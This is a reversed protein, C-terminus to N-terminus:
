FDNKAKKSGNQNKQYGDFIPTVWSKKYKTEISLFTLQHLKRMNLGRLFANRANKNNLDMEFRKQYGDFIPTVM